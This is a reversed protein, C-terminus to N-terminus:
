RLRRRRDTPRALQAAPQRAPSLRRPLPSAARPALRRQRPPRGGRGPWPRSAPWHPSSRGSAPLILLLGSNPDTAGGALIAGFAQGFVWIAAAVVIALILTGRAAPRPLYVGALALQLVRRADPAARAAAAEAGLRPQGTGRSAVIAADSM